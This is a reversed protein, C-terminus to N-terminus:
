LQLYLFPLSVPQPPGGPRCAPTRRHARRPRPRPRLGHGQSATDLDLTTAAAGEPIPTAQSRANEGLPLAHRSAEKGHDGQRNEHSSSLIGMPPHNKMVVLFCGMLYIGHFGLCTPPHAQPLLRSETQSGKGGVKLQVEM